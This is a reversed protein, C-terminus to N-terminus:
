KNVEAFVIIREFQLSLGENKELHQLEKIFEDKFLERDDFFLPELYLKLGVSDFFDYASQYSGFNFNSDIKNINIKKYDLKNLM